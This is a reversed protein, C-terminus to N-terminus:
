KETAVYVGDWHEPPPIKQFERCRALLLLAPPDHARIQLADHYREAARAFDRAVYAALGEVFLRALELAVSDNESALALPEWVEVPHTRGIVQVLDIPRAILSEKAAQYAGDSILIATGYHKNLGELRSALNVVDGMVTYNFRDHSGVNGVLVVGTAVGIRQRINSMWPTDPAARLEALRRQSWLATECAKAAHDAAPVPAGWFAMIADGIFKDVTGARSEIGQTMEDFYRSLHQVLQDPNMGEAISTMGVIDSFYITLERTQGQLTAEQGSALMARVLDRPVYNAFSRLSGKMNLLAEDMAAVERFFTKIRPRNTLRFTGIEEMEAALQTLPGSIRRAMIFAVLLGTGLAIAVILITVQRNEALVGLFDSEPAVVGLLWKPGNEIDLSRFGALYGVGAETFAFQEEAASKGSSIRGEVKDTFTQLAANPIDSVMVLQGATKKGSTEVRKLGPYAVIMRSHATKGPMFIFVKGHDGFRLKSVFESLFNLDFDISFVGRVMGDNGIHPEACTIGPVGEDFLIFPGLWLLKRNQKAIEYFGQDRPDYGYNTEREHLKWADNKDVLYDEETGGQAPTTQSVHLDGDPTRYAGSFNGMEDGYSAWSFSPNTRLIQVFHRALIDSDGRIVSNRILMNSLQVATVAQQLHSDVQANLSSLLEQVRSHTLHIIAKRTNIFTAWGIIAVTIAVLVSVM